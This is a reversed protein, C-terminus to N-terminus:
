HVWDGEFAGEEPLPKRGGYGADLEHFATVGEEGFKWCLYVVRGQHRSRFDCLGEAAKVEVGLESVGRLLEILEAVLTGARRQLGQVEAPARPNVEVRASDLPHGAEHLEKQLKAIRDRLMRAKTFAAHLTPVLANAERLSFLRPPVIAAAVNRWVNRSVSPPKACLNWEERSVRLQCM